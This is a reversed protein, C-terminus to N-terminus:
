RGPPAGAARALYIRGAENMAVLELAYGDHYLRSPWWDWLQRGDSYLLFEAHTAAFEKFDHVQMKLYPRMALICKDATDSGTYTIAASVDTVFVTRRNLGPSAYYALPLYDLADSDVLPLDAHGAAALLREIGATASPPHRLLHLQFRWFVAEQAAINAFLLAAFLAVLRRDLAALIYSAAVALGLVTLLLYRPNYGGHLIKLAAYLIWPLLLFGLILVHEHLPIEDKAPSTRHAHWGYIVVAAVAAVALGIGYTPPLDFLWGYARATEDLSLRGTIHGGYNRKFSQLLPWFFILPLAAFVLAGWVGFRVRRATLLFALEALGFLGVGFIAYYHSSVAAALCVGMAVWWRTIEVRQYCVMALAVFGAMLSYGRAEVAYYIFLQSLMPIAACLLAVESGRRKQVFLFVGFVVCCYALISPLRYGITERFPLSAFIREALYFSPPHSDAAGALADKVAHLSQLRTLSVTIVEDCWFLRSAARVVGNLATYSILLVLIRRAWKEGILTM